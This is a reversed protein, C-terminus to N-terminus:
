HKKSLPQSALSYAFLTNSASSKWCMQMM